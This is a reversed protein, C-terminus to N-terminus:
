AHTIVAYESNTSLKRRVERPQPLHLREASRSAEIHGMSECGRWRQLDETALYAQTLEPTSVGRISIMIEAYPVESQSENDESTVRLTRQENQSASSDNTPSFIARSHTPSSPIDDEDDDCENRRCQKRNLCLYVVLAMVAMCMAVSFTALVQTETFRWVGSSDMPKVTAPMNNTPAVKWTRTSTRAEINNYRQSGNVYLAVVQHTKTNLDPEDTAQTYCTYNFKLDQTSVRPLHLTVVCSTRNRDGLCEFSEPEKSWCGRLFEKSCNYHCKLTLSQGLTVLKSEFPVNCCVTDKTIWLYLLTLHFIILM